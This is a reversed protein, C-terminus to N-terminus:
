RTSVEGGALLALLATQTPTDYTGTAPLGQDKQLALIARETMGGYDGDSTGCDFGAQKLADQLAVVKPGRDGKKLLSPQAAIVPAGVPALRRFRVLKDAKFGSLNVANSQNGGLVYIRSNDQSYGMYIGVHTIKSGGSTSSFLAIDGPEPRSTVKGVEDWSEARGKNTREVGAKFAVWNMFVSCWPTDDDKYWSDFGIEKAYTLIRENSGPGVVEEVGLEQTAIQILQNM